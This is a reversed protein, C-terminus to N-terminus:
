RVLTFSRAEACVGQVVHLLFLELGPRLKEQRLYLWHFMFSRSYCEVTGTYM